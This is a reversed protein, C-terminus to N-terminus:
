RAVPMIFTSHKFVHMTHEPSLQRTMVDIKWSSSERSITIHNWAARKNPNTTLHSASSIGIVPIPNPADLMVQTIKHSHGHLVLEAGYQALISCFKKQDILSKRRAVQGKLPPHHLMVIRCLGEQKTLSLKFELQQIQNEGIEGTAMFPLTPLATNVEILAIPGLRTVFPLSNQECMMWRQWKLIGEQPPVAVMADHNGCVLRTQPFGSHELWEAASSFEQPLAMNTLDGSIAVLNPACQLIDKRITDTITKLYHHRRRLQWSLYSLARKNLFQKFLLGETPLPLHIDSLHALTFNNM